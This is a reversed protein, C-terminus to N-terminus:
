ASVGLLSVWLAALLGAGLQGSSCSSASVMWAPSTWKCPMTSSTITSPDNIFLTEPEWRRMRMWDATRQTRARISRWPHQAFFGIFIALIASASKGGEATLGRSGGGSM